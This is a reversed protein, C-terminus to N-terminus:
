EFALDAAFIALRISEWLVLAVKILDYGMCTIKMVENPGDVINALGGVVVGDDPGPGVLYRPELSRNIVNLLCPVAKPLYELVDVTYLGKSAWHIINSM